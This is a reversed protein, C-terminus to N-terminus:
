YNLLGRVRHIYSGLHKQSVIFDKLPTNIDFYFINALFGYCCVDIIHISKGFIFDQSGLLLNIVTLDEIGSQYIEETTYRGIGQYHYKEINYKKANELMMEPVDGLQKLFEMKFLPWFREDQWRSYSIVWYLHSDLM